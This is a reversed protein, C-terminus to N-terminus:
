QAGGVVVRMTQTSRGWAYNKIRDEQMNFGARRAVGRAFIAGDVFHDHVSSSAKRDAARIGDGHAEWWARLWLMHSCLAEVEERMLQAETLGPPEIPAAAARLLAVARLSLSRTSEPSASSQAIACSTRTSNVM